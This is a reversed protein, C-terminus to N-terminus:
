KAEMVAEPQRDACKINYVAVINSAIGQMFIGHERIFMCGLAEYAHGSVEPDISNVCSDHYKITDELIAVNFSYSYLLEECTLDEYLINELGKSTPVVSALVALACALALAYVGLRILM